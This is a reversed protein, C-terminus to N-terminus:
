VPSDSQPLLVSLHLIREGGWGGIETRERGGERGGEGGREREVERMHTRVRM